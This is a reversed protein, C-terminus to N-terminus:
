EVKNSDHFIKFKSPRNTFYISDWTSLPEMFEFCIHRCTTRKEYIGLVQEQSNLRRSEYAIPHGEQLLVVGLSEGCADCQVEFPKMLDPTILLPKTM